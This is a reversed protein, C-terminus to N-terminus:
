LHKFCENSVSFEVDNDETASIGLYTPRITEISTIKAINRGPILINVEVSGKPVKVEFSDALSIQYRTKLKSEHFVEEGNVQIFVEDQEFGDQLEIHLSIM